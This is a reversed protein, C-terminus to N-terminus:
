AISDLASTFSDAYFADESLGCQAIFDRRASEVMIPAGCAYVEYQSLDPHDQMVARHVFGCRGSWFDESVPESLVPIFKIFDNEQSWFSALDKLYLDALRRGGWYLEVSRRINKHLMYEVIAKIPAFGTGSALLIIPRQSDERLFFSGLPGEMRLIQREKMENFVYDTFVGGPMHRIHLDIYGLQEHPSTAISYSRRVGDKLLFEIYQGAKYQLIENAPLQLRMVIVDESKRELSNVRCPLKRVPIDSVGVIERAKVVLNGIPKACCLLVKGAAKEEDSLACSQYVGYDVSGELLDAKCSGCAGNKCGYPLVIGQQLAANLITEGAPCDFNRQSPQLKIDMGM